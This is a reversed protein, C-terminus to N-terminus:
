ISSDSMELILRNPNGGSQAEDWIRLLMERNLSLWEVIKEDYAASLCGKIKEPPDISFSAVHKLNGYDLHLHPLKHGKEQYMKIKINKLRAVLFGFSDRSERRDLGSLLDIEAFSKQLKKLEDDIKM